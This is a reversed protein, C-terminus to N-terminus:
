TSMLCNMLRPRDYRSFLHLGPTASTNTDSAWDLVVEPREAVFGTAIRTTQLLFKILFPGCSTPVEVYSALRLRAGRWQLQHAFSSSTRVGVVHYRARDMPDDGDRPGLSYLSVPIGIM